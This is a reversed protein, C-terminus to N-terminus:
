PESGVPDPETAGTASLGGVSRRKRALAAHLRGELEPDGAARHLAAELLAADELAEAQLATALKRVEAHLETLEDGRRLGRMRPVRGEALERVARRLVYEPGAMKHTVAITGVALALNFVVLAGVLRVLASGDEEALGEAFVPDFEAELRLIRTNEQMQSWLVSGLGVSLLASIGVVLATYKLQFRRNLLYNKWLRKTRREM